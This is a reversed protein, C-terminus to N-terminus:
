GTILLYLPCGLLLRKLLASYWVHVERGQVGIFGVCFNVESFQVGMGRFGGM